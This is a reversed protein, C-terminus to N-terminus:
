EECEKDAKVLVRASEIMSKISEYEACWKGNDKFANAYEHEEHEATKIADDFMELIENVDKLEGHGKPLPTGNAIADILTRTYRMNICKSEKADRILEEAIEESINIVLEM